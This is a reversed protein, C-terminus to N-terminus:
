LSVVASTDCEDRFTALAADLDKASEAKLEALQEKDVGTAVSATDVADKGSSTREVSLDKDKDRSSRSATTHCPPTLSLHTPAYPPHTCVM